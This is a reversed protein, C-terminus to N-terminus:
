VIFLPVTNYDIFHVAHLLDQSELFSASSTDGTVTQCYVNINKNALFTLKAWCLCFTETTLWLWAEVYKVTWMNVM